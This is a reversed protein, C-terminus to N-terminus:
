VLHLYTHFPTYIPFSNFSNSIPHFYFSWDVRNGKLEKETLFSRQNSSSLPPSSSSANNNNNNSNNNNVDIVVANVNLNSSTQRKTPQKEDCLIIDIGGSSSGGGGTRLMNLLVSKGCGTPGLICTLSGAPIHLFTRKLISFDINEM